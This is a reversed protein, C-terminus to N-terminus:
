LWPKRASYPPPDKVPKAAHEKTAQELRAAEAKATEGAKAVADAAANITATQVMLEAIGAMLRQGKAGHKAFTQMLDAQLNEDALDVTLNSLQALLPHVGEPLLAPGGNAISIRNVAAPLLALATKGAEKKFEVEAKAKTVLAEREAAHDALTMNALFLDGTQKRLDKIEEHAADLAEQIIKTARAEKREAYLLVNRAHDVVARVIETPKASAVGGAESGEPEEGVLGIHELARPVAESGYFGCVEFAVHEGPTVNDAYREAVDALRKVIQDTDKDEDIQITLLARPRRENARRLVILRLAGAGHEDGAEEYVERRWDNVWGRLEVRDVISADRPARRQDRTALPYVTAKRTLEAGM